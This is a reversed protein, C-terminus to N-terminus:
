VTGPRLKGTGDEPHRREETTEALSDVVELLPGTTNVMNWKTGAPKEAGRKKKLDLPISQM